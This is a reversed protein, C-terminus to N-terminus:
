IWLMLSPKFSGCKTELSTRASFFLTKKLLFIKHSAWPLYSCLNVCQCTWLSLKNEQFLDFCPVEGLCVSVLDAHADCLHQHYILVSTVFSFSWLNKVTSTVRTVAHKWTTMQVSNYWTCSHVALHRQNWMLHCLLESTWHEPFPGNNFILDPANHCFPGFSLTHATM